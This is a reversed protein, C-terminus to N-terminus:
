GQKYIQKEKDVEGGWRAMWRRGSKPGEGFIGDDDNGALAWTIKQWFPKESLEDRHKPIYKYLWHDAHFNQINNM